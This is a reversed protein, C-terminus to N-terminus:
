QSMCFNQEIQKMKTIDMCQSLNLRDNRKACFVLEMKQWEIYFCQNFNSLM